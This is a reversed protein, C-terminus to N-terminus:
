TVTVTTRVTDQDIESTRLTFRLEWRGASPLTVRGTATGGDGPELAIPIPAIDRSPLAASAKWEAVRLPAGGPGTATLHVTVTGVRTPSVHLRLTFLDSTLTRVVEETPKAAAADNRAPSTQVLVATVALVVAALTLEVTVLRRLRDPSGRRLVLRRSFYAVALIAALIGAKALVLRGYATGVLAGATRVEIVAQVVGAAVLVAVATGAVRSWSPLVGGLEDRTARRLLLGVLIVLGGLWVAMAALHALDATVSLWPVPSASPHGTLPWTALAATGLGALAVGETRSVPGAVVRRILPVAAALLVLRALHAYGFRSDLVQWLAAGDIRSLGGGYQHPVQVPLAGVTAVAVAGLGTWALRGATTRSAPVPGGLLLVGLAGVLLVVGAFGVYELVAMAAYVAPDDRPAAAVAPARSPAGVSFSFAGSVPHGDSSIVRFTVVYTGEAAGHVGVRVARGDTGPEGHDARAGDPAIVRIQDAVPAVPESFTLTVRSPAADLVTGNAPSTSVLVAHAWAPSAAVAGYGLGATVGVLVALLWRRPAVARRRVGSGM